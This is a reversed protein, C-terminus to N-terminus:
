GGALLARYGDRFSPFGPTWGLMAKLKANSIRRDPVIAERRAAPLGTFTPSPMGVERALWQAVVAKRTPHDDAVNFVENHVEGPADFCTWIAAAIDQRHALNLHHDGVGAVQGSRVQELLAHRGPGYIGALRLIFWRKTVSGSDRLLKETASLIGPRTEDPAHIEAGEDVEVGGTQPYVSTSGTYILTNAPGKAQCWRLVSQMGALYSHRYGDLGAGGGSVCNLVLDPAGWVQNHWADDAVDAVVTDIGSARLAAAAAANRTLATVRLGDALAREAVITGVYGCGVILLQRDSYKGHAASTM